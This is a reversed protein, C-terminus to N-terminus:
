GQKLWIALEEITIQTKGVGVDICAAHALPPPPNNSFSRWSVPNDVARLFDRVIERMKDRAEAAPDAAIPYTPPASPLPPQWRTARAPAFIKGAGTARPPSGTIEFWREDTAVPDYKSSRASFEDFIDFGRQSGGSAAFIALAWTTWEEWGLDDNSVF